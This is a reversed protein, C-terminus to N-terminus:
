SVDILASADGETAISNYHYFQLTGVPQSSLHQKCVKSRNERRLFAVQYSFLCDSLLSSEGQHTTMAIVRATHYIYPPPFSKQVLCNLQALPLAHMHM